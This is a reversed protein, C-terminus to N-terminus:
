HKRRNGLVYIGGRRRDGKRGAAKIGRFSEANSVSERGGRRHDAGPASSSGREQYPGCGVSDRQVSAQGSAEDNGKENLSGKLLRLGVDEPVCVQFATPDMGFEILLDPFASACEGLYEIREQVQQGSETFWRVKQLVVAKQRCAAVREAITKAVRPRKTEPERSPAAKDLWFGRSCQYRPINMRSNMVWAPFGYSPMKLIYKTVYNLFYTASGAARAGDSFQCSGFEPGAVSDWEGADKPRFSGWARIGVDWPIFHANLLVHFHVMETNQQWEIACFYHKSELHGAKFLKAVWRSIVRKERCYRYAAEPSAFLKPDITLTWMTLKECDRFFSKEQVRRRLEYGRGTCCTACFRSRCSCGVVLTEKEPYM